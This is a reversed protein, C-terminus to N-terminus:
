TANVKYFYVIDTYYDDLYIALKPDSRIDTFADAASMQDYYDKICKIVDNYYGHEVLEDKSLGNIRIEMHRLQMNAAAQKRTNEYRQEKEDLANNYEFVYRITKDQEAKLETFKAAVEKECVSSFKNGAGSLLTLYEQKKSNLATIKATGEATIEAIKEGRERELESIKEAYIGSVKVGTKVAQKKVSEKASTFAENIKETKEATAATEAALEEDISSIKNNLEDTYSILRLEQAASVLTRAKATLDNDSLPTFTMRTLDLPLLTVGSYVDLRIRYYYFIDNLTDYLEAKTTPTNFQM